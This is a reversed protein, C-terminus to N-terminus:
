VAADDLVLAHVGDAGIVSAVLVQADQLAKRAVPKDNDAFDASRIRIGLGIGIRDCPLDAVQTSEPTLTSWM